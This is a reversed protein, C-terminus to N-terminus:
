EQPLPETPMAPPKKRSKLILAVLILSILIGALLALEKVPVIWFYILGNIPIQAEGAVAELKASYRGLRWKGALSFDYIRSSFPFINKPELSYEAISQNFWNRIYVKGTPKLHIDGLNEIKASLNIPGYHKFFADAKFEKLHIAETVDGIVNLYVLTGVKQVISSATQPANIQGELSPQYTVMAYHGGALANQPINIILTITETQHPKVVLKQPAVTIWSALSWRGSVTEDVAVPIGQDNNVIFDQYNAEYVMETDTENRVKLTEQITAGPLGSIELRPPIATISIAPQAKVTQTLSLFLFTLTGLFPLLKKM